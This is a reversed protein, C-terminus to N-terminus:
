SDRTLSVLAARGAEIDFLRNKIYPLKAKDITPAPDVIDLDLREAAEIVDTLKSDAKMKALQIRLAAARSIQLYNIAEVAIMVALWHGWSLKSAIIDRNQQWGDTTLRNDKDWWQKDKISIKASVEGFMLDADILRAARRVTRGERKNELYLQTGTAAVAGIIVGTLSFIGTLIVTETM